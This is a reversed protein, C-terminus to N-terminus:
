QKKNPLIELTIRINNKHVSMKEYYNEEETTSEILSLSDKIDCFIEMKQSDTLGTLQNICKTDMM